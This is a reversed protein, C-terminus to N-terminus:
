ASRWRIVGEVAMRLRCIIVAAKARLGGLGRAILWGHRQNGMGRTILSM